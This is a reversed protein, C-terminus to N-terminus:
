LVPTMTLFSGSKFTTTNPSSTRQSAQIIFTGSAGAVQVSGMLTINFEAASGITLPQGTGGTGTSYGSAIAAGDSGVSTASWQLGMGATGGIGVAVGGTGPTAIAFVNASFTYNRGSIVSATIFTGLAANNTFPLDAVAFVSIPANGPDIQFVSGDFVVTVLQGAVLEGGALPVLQGLVFTNIATAGTGNVNLTTAGTNTVGVVFKVTYGKTLSFNAPITSGVVQTNTGTSNAGIYVSTGGSAPTLPTTIGTLSTIDNNSGAGAALALCAILANYNSMVQTADATTGNILSFPVSCAVGARLPNLVVLLLGVAGLLASAVYALRRCRYKDM